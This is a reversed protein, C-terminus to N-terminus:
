KGAKSTPPKVRLSSRSLGHDCTAVRRGGTVHRQKKDRIPNLMGVARRNEDFIGALYSVSERKGSILKNKSPTNQLFFGRAHM